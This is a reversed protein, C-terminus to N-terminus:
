TIEAVNEKGAILRRYKETHNVTGTISERYSVQPKGVRAAVRSEKIVRNVLVDLHLEGM